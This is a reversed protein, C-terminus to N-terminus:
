AAAEDPRHRGGFMVRLPKAQDGSIEISEKPKGYAYHWLMSEVAPALTGARVKAQLAARYDASEVIGRAFDQAAQTTKNLLGKPRGPGPKGGKKFSAM